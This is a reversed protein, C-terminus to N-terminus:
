GGLNETTIPRNIWTGLLKQEVGHAASLNLSYPDLGAYFRPNWRLGPCHEPNDAAGVTIACISHRIRACSKSAGAFAFWPVTLFRTHPAM